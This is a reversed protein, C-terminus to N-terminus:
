TPADNASVAKVAAVDLDDTGGGAVARSLSKDVPELHDIDTPIAGNYDATDPAPGSIRSKICIRKAAQLRRRDLHRDDHPGTQTNRKEVRSQDLTVDDSIIRRRKSCPAHAVTASAAASTVVTPAAEVTPTAAAPTGALARAGASASSKKKEM